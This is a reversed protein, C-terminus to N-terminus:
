SHELSSGPGKGPGLYPCDRRRKAMRIEVYELSSLELSSLTIINILSSRNLMMKGHIEVYCQVFCTHAM